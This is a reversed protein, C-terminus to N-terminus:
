WGLLGLMGDALLSSLRSEGRGWTFFTLVVSSKLFPKGDNM